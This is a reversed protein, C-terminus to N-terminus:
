IIERRSLSELLADEKEASVQEYDVLRKVNQLSALIQDQCSQPGETSPAVYQINEKCYILYQGILMRHTELAKMSSDFFLNKADKIMTDVFKLVFIGSSNRDPQNEHSQSSISWDEGLYAGIKRNYRDTM